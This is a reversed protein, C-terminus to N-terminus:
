HRSAPLLNQLSRGTGNVALADRQPELHTERGVASGDIRTFQLLNEKIKQGFTHLLRQNVPIQRFLFHFLHIEQGLILCGDPLFQFISVQHRKHGVARDQGPLAPYGVQGHLLCHRKLRRFRQLHGQGQGMPTCHRAHANGFANGEDCAAAIVAFGGKQLRQLPAHVVMHVPIAPLQDDCIVARQLQPRLFAPLDCVRVNGQKDVVQGASFIRSGKGRQIGAAARGLRSIYYFSDTRAAPYKENILVSRGGVKHDPVLQHLLDDGPFFLGDRRKQLPGPIKVLLAANGGNQHHAAAAGIKM